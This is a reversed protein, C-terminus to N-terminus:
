EPKVTILLDKGGRRVGLNVPEGKKHGTLLEMYGYIDKVPKGGIAIIRDGEKLGAKDAPGGESVGALLLGPESDGYSPRIGLRPIAGYRRPPEAIKVYQPRDPLRTLQVALDAVMDKVMDMGPVNIKDSTDSPRHYDPHDGTFFFFVPIKKSYFSSQDSPGQGGAVKHLHFGYRVNVRDILENFGKATGTGYVILEDSPPLLHRRRALFWASVPLVPMRGAPVPTLVAMLARLGGPEPRLRGVMDMNIMAVTDALPFLPHRCYYESGLLGMEEGSFAIFVLRRAPPSGARGFRRALEMLVTTGSGNDDAGHHIAPNKSVALSGPDGYGLHDYHAGIIVTQRALPGSGEIVGVVNKLPITGHHVNVELRATWGGLPASHPRLDRDIAQELGRLGTDLSSRIMKDALARRVHVAPIKVGNREV